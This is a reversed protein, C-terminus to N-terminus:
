KSRKTPSKRREKGKKQPTPTVSHFDIAGDVLDRTISMPHGHGQQAPPSLHGREVPVYADNQLHQAGGRPHRPTSQPMLDSSSASLPGHVQAVRETASDRRPHAPGADPGPQPSRQQQSRTLTQRRVVARVQAQEDDSLDALASFPVFGQEDEDNLRSAKVMGDPARAGGVNVHVIENPTLTLQESPAHGTPIDGPAFGRCARMYKGSGPHSIWLLQVHGVTDSCPCVRPEQHPDACPM